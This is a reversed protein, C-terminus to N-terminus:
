TNNIVTTTDHYSTFAHVAALYINDSVKCSFTTAIENALLEEQLTRIHKRTHSRGITTYILLVM